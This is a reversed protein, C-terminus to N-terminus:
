TKNKELLLKLALSAPVLKTENDRHLFRIPYNM